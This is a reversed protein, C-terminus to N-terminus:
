EFVQSDIKKDGHELNNIIQDVKKTSGNLKNVILICKAVIYYGLIKKLFARASRNLNSILNSSYYKACLEEYSMYDVDKDFDEYLKHKGSPKWLNHNFYLAEKINRKELYIEQQLEELYKKGKLTNVMVMSEGCKNLNQARYVTGIGFFDGLTLDGIRPMTAYKCQYCAPKFFLNSLFCFLYSDRSSPVYKKSGNAFEICITRQILISWGDKKDTHCINEVKSGYKKELTKIYQQFLVTSSTGHCVIDATLLNPYEKGLYSHLGAVQCPLGCFFVSKQNELQKKVEAYVTGVYSQVYKSHAFNRIDEYKNTLKFKAEFNPTYEVGACYGGKLVFYKNLTSAIGGSASNKLIKEDLSHALYVEPYIREERHVTEIIPCAKECLKCNVCKANDIVPVYHGKKNLEMSICKQPCVNFCDGCGTCKSGDCLM